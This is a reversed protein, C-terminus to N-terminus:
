LGDAPRYFVVLYFHKWRTVDVLAQHFTKEEKQRVKGGVSFLISKIYPCSFVGGEAGGGQRCMWGCLM